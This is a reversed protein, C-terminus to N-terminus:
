VFEWILSRPVDTTMLDPSQVSKLPFIKPGNLEKEQKDDRTTEHSGNAFKHM